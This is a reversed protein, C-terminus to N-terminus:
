LLSPLLLSSLFIYQVDNQVLFQHYNELPNIARTTGTSGNTTSISVFIFDLRHLKGQGKRHVPIEGLLQLLRNKKAFKEYGKKSRKISLKDRSKNAM